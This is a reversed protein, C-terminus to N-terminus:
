ERRQIWLLIYMFGEFGGTKLHIVINYWIEKNEKNDQSYDCLASQRSQILNIMVRDINKNLLLVSEETKYQPTIMVEAQKMETNKM